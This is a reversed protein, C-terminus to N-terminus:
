RSASTSPRRPSRPSRTACNWSRWGSPRSRTPETFHASCTAACRAPRTPTDDTIAGGSRDYAVDFGTLGAPGYKDRIGALTMFEVPAGLADGVAGALLCGTLRRVAAM